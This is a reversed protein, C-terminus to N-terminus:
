NIKIQSAKSDEKRGYTDDKEIKIGYKNCLFLSDMVSERSVTTYDNVASEIKRIMYRIYDKDM